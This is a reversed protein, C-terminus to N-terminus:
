LDPPFPFSIFPFLYSPLNQKFSYVLISVIYHYKCVRRSQQINRFYSIEVLWTKFILCRNPMQILQTNLKAVNFVKYLNFRNNIAIAASSMFNLINEVDQLVPPLFFLFPDLDFTVITIFFNLGHFSNKHTVLYVLSVLKRNFKQSFLM